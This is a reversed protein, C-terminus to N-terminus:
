YMMKYARYLQPAVRAIESLAQKFTLGKEKVLAKVRVAVQKSLDCRVATEGLTQLRAQHCLEPHEHSIESLAAKYELGKAQMREVVLAAVKESAQIIQMEADGWPTSVTKTEVKRGLVEARAQEVLEPYAAAVEARAIRIDCRHTRIYEQVLDAVKQSLPNSMPPFPETSQQAQRMYPVPDM